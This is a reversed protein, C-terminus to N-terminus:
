PLYQATIRRINMSIFVLILSVNSEKGYPLDLILDSLNNEYTKWITYKPSMDFHPTRNPSKIISVRVTSYKWFSYKLARHFAGCYTHKNESTRCRATHSTNTLVYPLILAQIVIPPAM